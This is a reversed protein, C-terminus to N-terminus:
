YTKYHAIFPIITDENAEPCPDEPTVVQGKWPSMICETASAQGTLIWNTGALDAESTVYFCYPKGITLRNTGVPYDIWKFKPFVPIRWSSIRRAAVLSGCPNFAPAERLVLQAWDPYTDGGTADQKSLFCGLHNCNYNKPPFFIHFRYQELYCRAYGTYPGLHENRYPVPPFHKTFIGTTSPSPNEDITGLFYFQRDWNYPWDRLTWTHTYTDGAEEQEIGIYGTFCFYVDDEKMLGRVRHSRPHKRIPMTTFRCWLHCLKNTTGILRWGSNLCIQELNTMGWCQRVLPPPPPPAEAWWTEFQFDWGTWSTWDVGSNSSWCLNGRPYAGVSNSRMSLRNGVGADPNRIILAYKIGATLVIGNIEIEVWEAPAGAPFIETDFIAETLDPGTPRGQDDTARIAVSATFTVVGGRYGKLVVKSLGHTEQPTFTQAEWKIGYVNRGFNDTDDNFHEWLPDIGKKTFIPQSLPHNM